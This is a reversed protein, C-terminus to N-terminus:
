DFIPIKGLYPHFFIFGGGLNEGLRSFRLNTETHRFYFDYRKSDEFASSRYTKKQFNPDITLLASTCGTELVWHFVWQDGQQLVKLM